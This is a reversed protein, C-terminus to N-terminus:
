AKAEDMRRTKGNAKAQKGILLAKDIGCTCFKHNLCEELVRCMEAIKMDLRTNLFKLTDIKGNLVDNEKTLKDVDMKANIYDNMEAQGMLYQPYLKEQSM